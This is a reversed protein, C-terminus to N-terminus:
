FFFNHNPHISERVSQGSTLSAGILQYINRGEKGRNQEDTRIEYKKKNKRSADKSALVVTAYSFADCHGGHAAYVKVGPKILGTNYTGDFFDLLFGARVNLFHMHPDSQESYSRIQVNTLAREDCLLTRQAHLGGFCHINTNDTRSVNDSAKQEIIAPQSICM